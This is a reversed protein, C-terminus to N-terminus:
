KMTEYRPLDGAVDYSDGKSGVYIHNKERIGTPADLTGATIGMKPLGDEDFPLTSGCEAWFGDAAPLQPAQSRKSNRAGATKPVARGAGWTARRPSRLCLECTITRVTESRASTASGAAAPPGM